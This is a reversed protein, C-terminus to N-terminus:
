SHTKYTELMLPLELTFIAGFGPGDSHVTLSGGMEQAALASSHLGFGHGGERTTFGHRFIKAINEKAIGVGNDEVEIRLSDEGYKFCRIFLLKERPENKSLAHKANSILNVLIQLIRQKDLHIKPLEDLDLKLSIKHRALSASNIEVADEIIEKIDIIVEVGGVKAYGQQAKIIQKIHDVNSTLSRIKEAIDAHEKIIHKTAEHLYLPIHKGREDKTLFAGLDGTHETLMDIVKNLNEAKSSLVKEKIFSASINISNLVNGVNHLVDTAVEAMGARHATEVLEDQAAKLEAEARKRETIDLSYEIIESLKGENDLIPYAHVEVYKQNHDKDYHIHELVVPKGTKRIIEIPCPDEKTECPEDRKHTLKHCTLKGFANEEFNQKAASNAIRIIYDDANVVYFPHTLSELINNLFENQHRAQEEVKVRESVERSLEENAVTLESTREQVRAELQNKADILESDRRQIQELMTNFVKTLYGIEDNSEQLARVSYDKKESIDKAVQTLGLIPKSIMIQLRSSLLHGIALAIPLIVLAVITDWKLESRSRKMNDQMYITGIVENDLVIQRFVSFNGNEFAQQEKQPKPAQINEAVNESKYQAFIKGNKDYVCAFGVSDQFRLTSLIQQADERNDFALSAKCNDALMGVHSLTDQVVYRRSDIQKWIVFAAIAVLLIIINPIMIIAMLKRKITSNQLKLM